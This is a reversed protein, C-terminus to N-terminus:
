RAYFHLLREQQAFHQIICCQPPDLRECVYMRRRGNYFTGFIPCHWRTYNFQRRIQWTLRVGLQISAVEASLACSTSVRLASCLSDKLQPLLLMQVLKLPSIQPRLLREHIDRVITGKWFGWGGTWGGAAPRLVEADQRRRHCVSACVYEAQFQSCITTNQNTPRVDGTWM